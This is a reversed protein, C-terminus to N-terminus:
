KVAEDFMPVTKELNIILVKNRAGFDFPKMKQTGYRTRHGLLDSCWGQAHRMSVTAM